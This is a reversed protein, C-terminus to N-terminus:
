FDFAHVMFVIGVRSAALFGDEIGDFDEVVSLSEMGAIAIQRRYFKFTLM